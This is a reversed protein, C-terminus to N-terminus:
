GGVSLMRSGFQREKQGREEKCWRKGARYNAGEWACGGKEVMVKRELSYTSRVTRSRSIDSQSNFVTSRDLTILRKSVVAVAEAM